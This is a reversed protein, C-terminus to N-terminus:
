MFIMLLLQKLLEGGDLGGSDVGKSKADYERLLGLIGFVKTNPWRVVNIKLEKLAYLNNARV